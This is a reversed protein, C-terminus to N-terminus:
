KQTSLWSLTGPAGTKLRVTVRFSAQALIWCACFFYPLIAILSTHSTKAPGDPGAKKKKWSNRTCLKLPQWPSAPGLDLRGPPLHVLGKDGAGL